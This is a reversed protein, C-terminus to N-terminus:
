VVSKRDRYHARLVNDKARSSPQEFSTGRRTRGVLTGGCRGRARGRARPRTCYRVTSPSFSRDFSREELYSALPVFSRNARTISRAVRVLADKPHDVGAAAHPHILTPRVRSREHDSGPPRREPTNSSVLENNTKLISRRRSWRGGATELLYGRRRRRALARFTTRRSRKRDRSGSTDLGFTRRSLVIRACCTGPRARAHIELRSVTQAGRVLENTTGRVEVRVIEAGRTTTTMSTPARRALLNEDFFSVARPDNNTPRDIRPSSSAGRENSSVSSRGRRRRAHADLLAGDTRSPALGIKLEVVARTTKHKM